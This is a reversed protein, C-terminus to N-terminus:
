VKLLVQYVLAACYMTHNLKGEKGATSNVFIIHGSQQKVMFHYLKQTLLIPAKLNTEILTDLEQKKNNEFPQIYTIGANNVLINIRKYKDEIIDRIKNQTEESTIDGAIIEVNAAPHM